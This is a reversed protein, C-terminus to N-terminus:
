GPLERVRAAPIPYLGSLDLSEYSVKSIAAHLSKLDAHFYNREMAQSAWGCLTDAYEVAVGAKTLASRFNHRFSHFSTKRPKGIVRDLFRGFWQSFLTSYRQTAKGMEIEPFLRRDKSDARRLAVFDMFGLRILDPHLPVDRQSNKTKLRRETKEEEDLETRISLYAIGGQEKVDECYLQCLENLRAGHFLALLPVWFKGRRPRNPGPKAYHWEDDVCGTFIPASFIKKLDDTSFPPRPRKQRNQFRERLNKGKTPAAAILGEDVAFNFITSICNFYKSVTQKSFRVANGEEDARKIAQLLSLKPYRQSVHAPVTKLTEGVKLIDEATINAVPKHEGLVEKLLRIPIAYTIPTNESRTQKQFDMFRKTLQELSISRKPLPHPATLSSLGRFDGDTTQVSKRELRDIRRNLSEVKARRLRRALRLFEPSDPAVSLEPHQQLYAEALKLAPADSAQNDGDPYTLLVTQLAYSEKVDKRDDDSFSSLETDAWRESAREEEVFFNSVLAYIEAESLPPQKKDKANKRARMTAFLADTKVSEIACLRRASAFDATKLSRCVEFRGYDAALDIPVAARFYYIAGRRMLRTQRPM